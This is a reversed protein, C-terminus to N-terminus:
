RRGGGSIRRDSGGRILSRAADPTLQAAVISTLALVFGVSQIPSLSQDLVLWGLATAVAPSLLTLFSVATVPLRGLGQFWLSHALATAVLALWAYGGLAAADPIPPPGEVALAVPALLLGGATLQWSTFALTGAGPPRGWRKTLVLGAAMSAAGGLGALVGIPDFSIQGRLVILGVGLVGAVGWGLQWRTPRVGLLGFAIGAVLLPQVASLTGAVGGPLRYAAVFLLAFLAGINLAGLVASRWWWEGRPLTRSILLLLLGAPLARIVGAGLPVGPPLYETTVLYTTGWTAPALAALGTFGWTRASTRAAAPGAVERTQTM